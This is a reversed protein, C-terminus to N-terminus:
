PENGELGGQRADLFALVDDLLYVVRSGVKSWKLPYRKSSRWVALTQPRVRILAATEEPTLLKPFNMM